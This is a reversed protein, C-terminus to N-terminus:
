ATVLGALSATNYQLRKKNGGAIKGTLMQYTFFRKDIGEL